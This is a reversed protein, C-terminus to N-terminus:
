NWQVTRSIQFQWYRNDPIIPQLGFQQRYGGEIRTAGITLALLTQYRAVRHGRTGYFGWSYTHAPGHRFVLRMSDRSWLTHEFWVQTHLLSGRPLPSELLTWSDGTVVIGTSGLATRWTLNEHTLWDRTGGLVNAFRWHQFGFTGTLQHRSSKLFPYRYGAGAQRDSRKGRLDLSEAGYFYAQGANRGLGEAGVEIRSQWAPGRGFVGGLTLQFQDALGSQVVVGWRPAANREPLRTEASLCSILSLVFLSVKGARLSVYPFSPCLLNGPILYM